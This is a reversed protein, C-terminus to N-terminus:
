HDILKMEQPTLPDKPVSQGGLIHRLGALVLKVVFFNCFDLEYGYYRHLGNIASLYNTVTSFRCTQGLVVMFRCVTMIDAPLPCANADSCFKLFRKWQSNRTAWTTEAWSALIVKSMEKDIDEIWTTDVVCCIVM